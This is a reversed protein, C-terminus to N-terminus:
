ESTEKKAVKTRSRRRQWRAPCEVEQLGGFEVNGVYCGTARVPVNDCPVQWTEGKANQIFCGDPHILYGIMGGAASGVAAGLWGTPPGGVAHGVIAGVAAGAVSGTITNRDRDPMAACGSLAVGVALVMLGRRMRSGLRQMSTQRNFPDARWCCFSRSELARAVNDTLGRSWLRPPPGWLVTETFKPAAEPNIDGRGPSGPGLPVSVPARENDALGFAWWALLPTASLLWDSAVLGEAPAHTKAKMRIDFM